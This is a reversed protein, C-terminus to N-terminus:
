RRNDTRRIAVNAITATENNPEDEAKEEWRGVPDGVIPVLLPMLLLILVLVFM